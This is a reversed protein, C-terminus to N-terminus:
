PCCPAAPRSRSICSPTRNMFRGTASNSAKLSSEALQRREVEQKLDTVAQELGATRECVQAELTDRLDQQVLELKKHASIHAPAYSHRADALAQQLEFVQRRLDVLETSLSSDTDLPASM